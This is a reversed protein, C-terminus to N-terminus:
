APEVRAIVTNVEVLDGEEFLIEKITGNVEAEIESEVKDTSLDFLLEDEKVSDGVSKHWKTITAEKIASGMEPMKIEVM